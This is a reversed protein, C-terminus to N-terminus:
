HFKDKKPPKKLNLKTLDNAGITHYINFGKEQFDYFIRKLDRLVEDTYIIINKIKHKKLFEPSPIDQNYLDWSNDFVSPDYKHRLIRNSDLLFVPLSADNLKAEKLLDTSWKLAEQISINDVLAFSKAPSPSANYLAIPRYGKELMKMGTLVSEEKPLDIIYITDEKYVIEKSIDPLIFNKDDVKDIDLFLVPRVWASWISTTPAWLKYYDKNKM